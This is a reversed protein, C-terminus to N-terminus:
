NVTTKFEGHKDNQKALTLNRGPCQQTFVTHCASLSKKADDASISPAACPVTTGKETVRNSNWPEHLRHHDQLQRESRLLSASYVSCQVLARSPELLTLFVYLPVQYMNKHPALSAPLPAPLCSEWGWMPNYVKPVGKNGM